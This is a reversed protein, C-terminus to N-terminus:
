GRIPSSRRRRRPFSQNSVFTIRQACNGHRKSWEAWIDTVPLLDCNALTYERAEHESEGAFKAFPLFISRGRYNSNNKSMKLAEVGGLDAIRCAYLSMCCDCYRRLAPWGYQLGRELWGLDAVFTAASTEAMSAVTCFSTGEKRWGKPVGPVMQTRVMVVVLWKEKVARTAPIHMAFLDNCVPDITSVQLNHDRM